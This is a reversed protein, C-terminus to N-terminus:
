LAGTFVVTISCDYFNVNHATFSSGSIAFDVSVASGESANTAAALSVTMSNNPSTQTRNDTASQTRTVFGNVNVYAPSFSIDATDTCNINVIVLVGYKGTPRPPTFTYTPSSFFVNGGGGAASSRQFPPVNFTFQTSVNQIGAIQRALIDSRSRFQSGSSSSDGEIVAIRRDNEDSIAEYWRGWQMAERPLNMEPKRM